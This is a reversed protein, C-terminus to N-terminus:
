SELIQKLEEPNFDRKPIRDKDELKIIRKLAYEPGVNGSALVKYEKDACGKHLLKFTCTTRYDVYVFYCKIGCYEYQGCDCTYVVKYIDTGM